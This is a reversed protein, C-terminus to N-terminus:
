HFEREKSREKEREYIVKKRKAGSTITKLRAIEYGEDAVKLPGFSPNTSNM